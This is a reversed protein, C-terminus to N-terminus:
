WSQVKIGIVEGEGRVIAVVDNAIHRSIGALARESMNVKYVRESSRVVRKHEAINEMLTMLGENGSVGTSKAVSDFNVYKAIAPSSQRVFELCEEIRRTLRESMFYGRIEEGSGLNEEAIVRGQADFRRSCPVMDDNSDFGIATCMALAFAIQSTGELVFQRELARPPLMALKVAQYERESMEDGGPNVLDEFLERMKGLQGQGYASRGSQALTGSGSQIVTPTHGSM